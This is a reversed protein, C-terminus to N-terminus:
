GLQGAVGEDILSDATRRGSYSVRLGAALRGTIGGRAPGDFVLDAIVGPPFAARPLGIVAGAPAPVDGTAAGPRGEGGGRGLAFLLNSGDIFAREVGALIDATPAPAPPPAARGSRGSHRSVGLQRPSPDHRPAARGSRRSIHPQRCRDM